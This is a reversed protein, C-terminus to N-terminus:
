GAPPDTKAAFEAPSYASKGAHLDQILIRFYNRPNLRNLKCSEVLSFLIAATKAGQKSHTGYWTKRGIVPNRLLREQPNNDIPLEANQLFLTLEKYNELFYMMARAIMSKASYSVLHAMARKKMEEFSSKMSQRIHLIEEASKGRAENERHYIQHYQEIFFASEEPAGEQAEIFKRRAHANCYVSQILSRNQEQRTINTDKVARGYGSFVDSVLYECRSNTLLRSAVAGSRTDHYEFYSTKQNSFGWLFWNSKKDGELMRHPTEDAHLVKSEIIEARLRDYAKEVFEAVYHTAEILSQPPLDKFGERAAMSAYREIPILDCYKSLAVDVMLEDSYSSGEKIREPAPATQINGHCKGCRVKQRKQRIILYQKPIVTLHESDETMGSDMMEAGCCSCSPMSQFEISREILPAEPYRESPLQVRRRKPKSPKSSDEPVESALKESSKGYLKHKLVIYQDQVFLTRNQLERGLAELYEVRKRLQNNVDEQLKIFLILDEKTQMQLREVPVPDFLNQQQM